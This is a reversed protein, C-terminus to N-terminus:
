TEKVELTDITRRFALILERDAEEIRQDITGQKSKNSTQKTRAAM